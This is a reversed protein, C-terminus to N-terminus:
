LANSGHVARCIRIHVSLVCSDEESKGSCTLRCKGCIRFTKQDTIILVSPIVITDEVEFTSAIRLDNIQIFFRLRIDVICDLSVSKKLVYSQICVSLDIKRILAYCFICTYRVRDVM